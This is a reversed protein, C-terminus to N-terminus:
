DLNACRCGILLRAEDLTKVRKTTECFCGPSVVAELMGVAVHDGVIACGFGHSGLHNKIKVLRSLDNRDEFM